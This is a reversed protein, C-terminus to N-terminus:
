ERKGKHCTGRLACDRCGASGGGQRKLAWLAVIVAAILLGLLLYSLLNM